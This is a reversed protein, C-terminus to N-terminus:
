DYKRADEIVRGDNPLTGAAVLAVDGRLRTIDGGAQIGSFGARDSAVVKSVNAHGSAQTNGCPRNILNRDQFHFGNNLM